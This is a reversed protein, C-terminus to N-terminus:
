LLRRLTFEFIERPTLLINKPFFIRCLRHSYETTNRDMTQHTIILVKTLPRVYHFFTCNKGELLPINVQGHVFTLKLLKFMLLLYSNSSYPIISIPIKCKNKGTNFMKDLLLFHYDLCFTKTYVRRLPKPFM